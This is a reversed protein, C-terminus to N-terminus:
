TQKQKSSLGIVSREAALWETQDEDGDSRLFDSLMKLAIARQRLPIEHTRVFNQYERKAQAFTGHRYHWNIRLNMLTAWDPSKLKSITSAYENFKHRNGTRIAANMLQAYGMQKEPHSVQYSVLFQEAQSFDSLALVKTIAALEYSTLKSGTEKIQALRAKLADQDGSATHLVLFAGLLEREAYPFKEHIMSGIHYKKLSISTRVALLATSPEKTLGADCVKDLIDSALARYRKKPGFFQLAYHVIPLYQKWTNPYASLFYNWMKAMLSAHDSKKARQMAEFIAAPPVVGGKQCILHWVADVDQPRIPLFALELKESSSLFFDPQSSISLLKSFNQRFRSPDYKLCADITKQISRTTM